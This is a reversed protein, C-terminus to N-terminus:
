RKLKSKILKIRIFIEQRSLATNGFKDFNNGKYCTVVDYRNDTGERKKAIFTIDDCQIIKMNCTNYKEYMYLIYRPYKDFVMNTIDKGNYVMKLLVSIDTFESIREAFREKCHLTIFYSM